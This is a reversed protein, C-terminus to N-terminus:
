VGLFSSLTTGNIDVSVRMQPFLTVVFAKTEAASAATTYSKVLSWDAGTLSGYLEVVSGSGGTGTQDIVWTGTRPMHMGMDPKVTSAEYATNGTGGKIADTTIAAHFTYGQM